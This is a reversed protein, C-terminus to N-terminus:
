EMKKILRREEDTHKSGLSSGRAVTKRQELALHFTRADIRWGITLYQYFRNRCIACHGFHPLM